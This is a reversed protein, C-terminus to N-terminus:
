MRAMWFQAPREHHGHSLIGSLTGIPHTRHDKACRAAERSGLRLHRQGPFGTGPQLGSPHLLNSFVKDQHLPLIIRYKLLHFRPRELMLGHNDTDESRTLDNIVRGMIRRTTTENRDDHLSLTTIFLHLFLILDYLTTASHLDRQHRILSFRFYLFSLLINEFYSDLPISFEFTSRDRACGLRTCQQKNTKDKFWPFGLLFLSFSARFSLILYFTTALRRYTLSGQGTTTLEQVWYTGARSWGINPNLDLSRALPQRGASIHAVPFIWNFTAGFRYFTNLCGQGPFFNCYALHKAAKSNDFHHSLLFDSQGLIDTNFNEM